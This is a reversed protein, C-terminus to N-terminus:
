LIEHAHRGCPIGARPGFRRAAVWAPCSAGTGAGAGHPADLGACVRRHWRPAVLLPKEGAARKAM